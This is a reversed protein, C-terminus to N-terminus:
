NERVRWQSRRLLANSRALLEGNHFPKDMFDDAGLELANVRVEYSNRGTIMMIPVNSTKM